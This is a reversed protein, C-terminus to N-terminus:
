KIEKLSQELTQCRVLIDQALRDRECREIMKSSLQIQDCLNKLVIKEQELAAKQQLLTNISMLEKDPDLRAVMDDIDAGMDEMGSLLKIIRPVILRLQIYDEAKTWKTIGELINQVSEVMEHIREPVCKIRQETRNDM